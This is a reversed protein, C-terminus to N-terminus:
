GGHHVYRTPDLDWNEGLLDWRTQLDLAGPFMAEYRRFEADHGHGPLVDHLLEHWLLYALMDDGVHNPKTRFICNVRIRRRGKARGTSSVTWYALHYASPRKSWAVDLPGHMWAKVGPPLVDRAFARAIEYPQELSRQRDLPLKNRRYNDRPREPIREADLPRRAALLDRVAADVKEGFAEASQWAQDLHSEWHTQVLDARARPDLGDTIIREALEWEGVGSRLSVFPPAEGAFRVYDVFERLNRRSPFPPPGDEFYSQAAPLQSREQADALLEHYGARQHDFVPIVADLLEYYGVLPTITLAPDLPTDNLPDDDDHNAALEPADMIRSVQAAVGLAIPRGDDDVIRPLARSPEASDGRLEFRHPGWVVETPDLLDGFNAFHDRLSVIFARTGGGSKPGRLVRGIMQVMLIRSATPRAIVATRAQPLDVGENLMGVSVLVPNGGRRVEDRFWELVEAASEASRSHVAKVALERNALARRLTEAHDIDIAFVLTPGFEDIHNRCLDAILANRTGNDLERLARPDADGLRRVRELTDADWVISQGTEITAVNATALIGAEILAPIESRHVPDGFRQQFNWRSAMGSPYPTATLGIVIRTSEAAVIRDLLDHLRAAGAHHAEDVVVFTPRESALMRRLRQKEISQYTTVVVDNDGSDLLSAASAAHHIVRIRREFGNPMAAADNEFSRAAQDALETRHTLWLVRANPDSKLRELLWGVATFTKGAGTPMVVLAAERGNAVAEDLAERAETQHDLAERGPSSRGRLWRVEPQGARRSSGGSRVPRKAKHAKSFAAALLLQTNRSSLGTELRALTASKTRPISRRFLLYALGKVDGAPLPKVWYEVLVAALTRNMRSRVGQGFVSQARARLDVADMVHLAKIETRDLKRHSRYAAELLRRVLADDVENWDFVLREPPAGAGVSGTQRTM